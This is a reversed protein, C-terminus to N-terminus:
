NASFTKGPAVTITGSCFTLNGTTVMDEAVDFTSGNGSAGVSFNAAMGTDDIGARVHLKRESGDVKYMGSSNGSFRGSYLVLTDDDAASHTAEVTGNNILGADPTADLGRIQLSGEIDIGNTLDYTDAITIRAANDHGDIKGAGVLFQSNSTFALTAFAAGSLPASLRVTGAIAHTASDSGDLTLTGGAKIDLTKTTQVDLSDAAEGATVQIDHAVIVHNIATPKVTAPNVNYTGDNNTDVKWISATAYDGGSISLYTGTEAMASGTIFFAAITAATLISKSRM